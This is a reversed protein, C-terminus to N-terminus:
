GGAFPPLLAIDPNTITTNHNVLTQNEAVQFNQHQLSPYKNFLQHLLDSVTAESFEITEENCQTVETLMGFYKINLNM